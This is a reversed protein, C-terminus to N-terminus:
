LCRCRRRGFSLLRLWRDICSCWIHPSKSSLRSCCRIPRPRLPFLRRHFHDCHFKTLDLPSRIPM